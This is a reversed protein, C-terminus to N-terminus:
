RTFSTINPTSSLCEVTFYLGLFIYTNISCASLPTLRVKLQEFLESISDYTSSVDNAANVLYMVASYIGQSPPFLDSSSNSVIDGVIEVPKLMASLTGFLSERKARFASFRENQLDLQHKLDDLSKMPPTMYDEVSQGSTEKYLKGADALVAAFEAEILPRNQKLDGM